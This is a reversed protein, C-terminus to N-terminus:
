AEREWAGAALRLGEELPTFALDCGAARLNALEAETFSQYKGALSDPFPIYEIGGRGLIGIAVRAVENFSRSEGTGVNYIGRADPRAAFFLNVRAADGAYIFDRRQEGDAFGDTGRFLQVRGTERLQKYIQYAMSAMRGKHAEGPGYVNFYRLGVVTSRARGLAGRVVEDFALKSRAYLNIPSENEPVERSARNTGYVSASSAYVFPVARSLAFDLLKKSFELNNEMMYAEDTATTDVCAGQHLIADVPGPLTGAELAALFGPADMYSFECGALNPSSSADPALDVVLVDADGRANLANLARVVHSGIFGAGGTVVYV